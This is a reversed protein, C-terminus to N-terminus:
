APPSATADAPSSGRWGEAFLREFGDYPVLPVLEFTILGQAVLPLSELAARAAGPGECELVLVAERRDGRFWLERFVGAQHLAWARAAEARLVEPTFSADAVGPVPQELALFRM